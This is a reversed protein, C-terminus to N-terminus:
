RELPEVLGNAQLKAVARLIVAAVDKGEEITYTRRFLAVAEELSLGDKLCKWVLTSTGNLVHVKDAEHDFVM